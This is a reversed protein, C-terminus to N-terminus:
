GGFVRAMDMDVGVVKWTLGRPAFVIDIPGKDSPIEAVFRFLGFKPRFETAPPAESRGRSAGPFGNDSKHGVLGIVGEPTLVNNIVAIFFNGAGHDDDPTANDRKLEAKFDNTVDTRLAPFDVAAALAPGDGSLAASRIGRAALLPSAFVHFALGAVLIAAAGIALKKKM